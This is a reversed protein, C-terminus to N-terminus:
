NHILLFALRYIFLSCFVDNVLAVKGINSATPRFGKTATIQTQGWNWLLLKGVQWVPTNGPLNLVDKLRNCPYIDMIKRSAYFSSMMTTRQAAQHPGAFLYKKELAPPHTAPVVAGPNGEKDNRGPPRPMGPPLSHIAQYKM